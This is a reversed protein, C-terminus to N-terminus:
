SMPGEKKTEMGSIDRRRGLALGEEDSSGKGAWGESTKNKESERRRLSGEGGNYLIRREM